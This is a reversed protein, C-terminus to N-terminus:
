KEGAKAREVYEAEANNLNQQAVEIFVRAMDVSSEVTFMVRDAYLRAAIMAVEGATTNRVATLKVRTSM